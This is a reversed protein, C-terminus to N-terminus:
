GVTRLCSLQLVVTAPPKRRLHRFYDSTHIFSVALFLKKPIEWPLTTIDSLNPTHPNIDIKEPNLM